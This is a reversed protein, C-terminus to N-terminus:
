ESVEQLITDFVGHKTANTHVIEVNLRECLLNVATIVDSLEVRALATAGFLITEQVPEGAQNVATM